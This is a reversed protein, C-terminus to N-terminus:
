AFPRHSAYVSSACCWCWELKATTPDADAVGAACADDNYSFSIFRFSIYFFFVIQASM